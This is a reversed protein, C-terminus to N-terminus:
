SAAGDLRFWVEVDHDAGRGVDKDVHAGAERGTHVVDLADDFRLWTGDYGPGAGVRCGECVVFAGEGLEAAHAAADRVLGGDCVEFVAAM